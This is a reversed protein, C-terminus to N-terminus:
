LSLQQQKDKDKFALLLLLLLLSLLMSWNDSSLVTIGEPQLADKVASFLPSVRNCGEGKVEEAISPNYRRIRVKRNFRYFNRGIIILAEGKKRNCRWAWGSYDIAHRHRMYCSFKIRTLCGHISRHLSKFLQIKDGPCGYLVSLSTPYDYM